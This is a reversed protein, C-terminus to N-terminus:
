HNGFKRYQGPTLGTKKKFLRSFYSVDKFGLTYAVNAITQERKQILTLKAQEIRATTVYEQFSVGVNAHFVKSFYNVSLHCHDAVEKETVASNLHADIYSVTSEVNFRHSIQYADPKNSLQKYRELLTSLHNTAQINNENIHTINSIKNESQYINNHIVIIDRNLNIAIKEALDALQKNRSSHLYLFSFSQNPESLVSIDWGVHNIIFNTQIVKLLCSNLYNPEDGIFNGKEMDTVIQYPM